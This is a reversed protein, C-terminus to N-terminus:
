VMGKTVGNIQGYSDNVYAWLKDEASKQIYPKKFSAVREKWIEFAKEYVTRGGANKWDEFSRRIFTKPTWANRCRELTMSTALFNGGPGVERITDIGM